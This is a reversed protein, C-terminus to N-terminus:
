ERHSDEKAVSIYIYATLLVFAEGRLWLQQIEQDPGM